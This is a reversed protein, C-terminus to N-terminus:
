VHESAGTNTGALILEDEGYSADSRAGVTPDYEDDYASNSKKDKLSKEHGLGMMTAAARVSQVLTSNAQTDRLKEFEKRLFEATYKKKTEQELQQAITQWRNHEYRVLAAM